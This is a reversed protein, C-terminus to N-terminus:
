CPTECLDGSSFRGPTRSPRAASSATARATSNHPQRSSRPEM